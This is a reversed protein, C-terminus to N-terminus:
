PAEGEPQGARAPQYDDIAPLRDALVYGADRYVPWPRRWRGVDEVQETPYDPDTFLQAPEWLADSWRVDESM